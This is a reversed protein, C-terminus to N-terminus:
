QSLMVCLEDDPPSAVVLDPVCDGNLDGAVLQRLNSGCTKIISDGFGGGGDALRVFIQGGTHIVAIDDVSDGDLDTAVVESPSMQVTFKQPAGFAGNGDGPYLHAGDTGGGLTVAVLDPIGDGTMEGVAIAGDGGLGGPLSLSASLTLMNQGDRTYVNMTGTRAAVVDSFLDGNVDGVALASMSGGVDVSVLDGFKEMVDGPRVSVLNGHALVVDLIGDDDMDALRIAIPNDPYTSTFGWTGDGNGRRSQFARPTLADAIYVVDPIGDNAITGVFVRTPFPPAGMIPSDAPVQFTGDGVGFHTRINHDDRSTNVIDLNGDGDVDALAVGQPNPGAGLTIPAAYDVTFPGM